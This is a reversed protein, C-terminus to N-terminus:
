NETESREPPTSAVSDPTEPLDIYGNEYVPYSKPYFIPDSDDAPVAEAAPDSPPKSPILPETQPPEPPIPNTQPLLPDSPDLLCASAGAGSPRRAELRDFDEIARRYQRETQASYRVALAMTNSSGVARRFGEALMWNRIQSRKVEIDEVLDPDMPIRPRDRLGIAENLCNTFLGAELRAARFMAHQALAIREVAIREQSNVPNYYEVAEETLTTVNEEDELRVVTFYAAAFGHKRANQASRAKGEPSRPGTSNAANARNAALQEPSVTNQSNTM